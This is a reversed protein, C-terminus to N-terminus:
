FQQRMDSLTQRRTWYTPAKPDYRRNLADRGTVRFFLGVPTVVSWYLIGMLLFQVVAGIRGTIALWIRKPWVLAKPLIAGLALLLLAPALLAPRVPNGHWLPYVAWFLCVGGLLLGFARESITKEHAAVM